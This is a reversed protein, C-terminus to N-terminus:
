PATTPCRATQAGEPRCGARSQAEPGGVGARQEVAEIVGLIGEVCQLELELPNLPLDLKAM